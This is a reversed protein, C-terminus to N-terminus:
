IKLGKSWNAIIDTRSQELYKKKEEESLNKLKEELAKKKSKLSKKLGCYRTKIEDLRDLKKNKFHKCDECKMQTVEQSTTRFKKEGKEKWM